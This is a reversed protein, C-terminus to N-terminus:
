FGAEKREREFKVVMFIKSNSRNLAPSATAKAAILVTKLAAELIRYRKPLFRPCLPVPFPM